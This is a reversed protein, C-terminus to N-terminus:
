PDDRVEAAGNALLTRAALDPDGGAARVSILQGGAGAPGGFHRGGRGRWGLVLLGSLTALAGFLIAVEFSIVVFPPV